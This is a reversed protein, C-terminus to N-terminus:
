QAAPASGAARAASAPSGPTPYRGRDANAAYSVPQKSWCSCGRQGPHCASLGGGDTNTPLEGGLRLSGKEVFGGGEGKPCFGLDELTLLLMYTFADYIEAVDVDSPSVGARTFALPGSVAAPGVTLDDWQSMLM